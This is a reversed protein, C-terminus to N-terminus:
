WPFGHPLAGPAAAFACLLTVWEPVPRCSLALQLPMLPLLDWSCGCALNKRRHLVWLLPPPQAPSPASRPLLPGLLPPSGTPSPAWYPLPGLFPPSGTPSPVWHPLPGLPPPPQTPPLPGPLSPAWYPLSGLLPPPGAPPPGAPLGLTYKSDWWRTSLLLFSTFSPHCRGKHPCCTGPAFAPRHLSSTLLTLRRPESLEAGQGLHGGCSLSESCTLRSKAGPRLTQAVHIIQNGNSNRSGQKRSNNSPYFESAALPTTADISHDWHPPSLRPPSLGWNLCTTPATLPPTSLQFGYGWTEGKDMEWLGGCLVDWM